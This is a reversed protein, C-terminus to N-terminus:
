EEGAVKRRLAELYPKERELWALLALAHEPPLAVWQTYASLPLFGSSGVFEEKLEVFTESGFGQDYCVTHRHYQDEGLVVQKDDEREGEGQM